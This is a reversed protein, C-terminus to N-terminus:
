YSEIIKILDSQLRARQKGQANMSYAIELIQLMGPKTRHGKELLLSTVRKFKLFDESKVALPFKEFFPIVKEVITKNSDICYVLGINTPSKQRIKGTQLVWQFVELIERHNPHQYVQFIPNIFFGYRATLHRSISVSFCGEGDVFGALYPGLQRMPLGILREYYPKKIPTVEM